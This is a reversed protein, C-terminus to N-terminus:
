ALLERVTVRRREEASRVAAYTSALSNLNRAGSTEPEIGTDLAERFLELLRAQHVSPMAVLKVPEKKDPPSGLFLDDKDWILSAHSGEIRWTGNWSTDIGTSVWSAFYDVAVGNEMEILAMVTGDGKNWNWPTNISVAEISHIDSDLIARMLDFHHISMDLVLPYPMTERFGSFRPGKHFSLGVYGINGLAGTRVMQRATQAAPQYRYNQAIMLIRGYKQACAALAKANELTDAMPKEALVDLGHEMAKRCIDKRFQQPAVDLLADAEVSKLADDLNTFCKNKPVGYKKAAEHLTEENIDVYAVAKWQKSEAVRETWEAGMGGVGVQIIRKM